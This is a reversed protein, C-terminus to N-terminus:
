LGNTNGISNNPGLISKLKSLLKRTANLDHNDSNDMRLTDIKKILVEIEEDPYNKTTLITRSVKEILEDILQIDKRTDDDDEASDEISPKAKDFTIRIQSILSPVELDLDNEKVFAEARSQTAKNKFTSFKDVIDVSLDNAEQPSTNAPENQSPDMEPHELITITNIITLPQMEATPPLLPLECM